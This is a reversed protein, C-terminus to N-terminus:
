GRGQMRQVAAPTHFQDQLAQFFDAGVADVVDKSIVFEGDSLKANISDSVGTGPGKIHGGDAAFGTDGPGGMGGDVGGMGNGSGASGNTGGTSDSGRGDGSSGDGYGDMSSPATTGFNDNLGLFGGLADMTGAAVGPDAEGKGAQSSGLGGFGMENAINNVMVAELGPKGLMSSIAGVALGGLPGFAATAVGKALSSAFGGAMASNQAATGIAGPTSADKSSGERLADQLGQSALIQDSTLSNGSQASPAPKSYGTYNIAGQGTGRSVPDGMNNRSRVTGGDAFKQQGIREQYAKNAGKGNVAAEEAADLAAKRREQLTEGKAPGKSEVKGGDAFQQQQSQVIGGDAFAKHIKSADRLRAEHAAITSDHAAFLRDAADMKPPAAPQRSQQGGAQVEGGDAFGFFDSVSDWMSSAGDAISSGIDSFGSGIGDAFNSLGDGLGSFIEGYNGFQDGNGAFSPIGGAVNQLDYSDYNALLSNADLVGGSQSFANSFDLGAGASAGGQFMGKLGSKLPDLLQNKDAWNLATGGLGLLAATNPNAGSTQTTGPTTTVTGRSANAIQAATNSAAQQQQGVMGAAQGALTKNLEALSLALGSNNSSRTGTANAYAGTLVPVAQAGQTFMERILEAMGEPTSSRQQQDFVQQLPATNATSTQTATGGSTKQTTGMLQQLLAPLASDYKIPDAM